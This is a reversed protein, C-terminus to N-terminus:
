APPPKVSGLSPRGAGLGSADPILHVVLLVHPLSLKTDLSKFRDILHSQHEIPGRQEEFKTERSQAIQSKPQAM